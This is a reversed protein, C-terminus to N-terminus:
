GLCDAAVQGCADTRISGVRSSKDQPANALNISGHLDRPETHGCNPCVFTRDRLTLRDNKQGCKRCQKSSPFWRDIIDLKCGGFTCFRRREPTM